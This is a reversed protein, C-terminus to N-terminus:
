KPPTLQNWSNDGWCTIQGIKSIACAHKSGIAVAKFKGTPFPKKINGGCDLEDAPTIRCTYGGGVAVAKAAGPLAGGAGWCEIQKNDQRIACAHNIGMSVAKFKGKPPQANKGFLSNSGWCAIEGTTRVACAYRLGISVDRFKGAPPTSQGLNNRGWCQLDLDNEIACSNMEGVAIIRFKGKPANTQGYNNGGWCSLQGDVRIGCFHWNLGAAVAKFKGLPPAVFFMRHSEGGWCKATMDTAIMCSSYHGASVLGPVWIDCGPGEFREDACQTCDPGAFGQACEKCGPARFRANQCETCTPPKLQKAECGCEGDLAVCSVCGPLAVPCDADCVIRAAQIDSPKKCVFAPKACALGKACDYDGACKGCEQVETAASDTPAWPGGGGGGSSGGACGTAASGLVYIAFSFLAASRKM